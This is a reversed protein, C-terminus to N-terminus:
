APEICTEEKQILGNLIDELKMRRNDLIQFGHTQFQQQLGESSAVHMMIRYEGGGIEEIRSVGTMGALRQSGPSADGATDRVIMERWEDLLRDKECFALMRGRHMFMVYDALRYVEETTHTALILTRDENDMYHQLEDLWIKWALPDLGSTPEDLLLLEPHHATAIALEARRRMGKSLKGLRSKEDINFRKLLERYRNNDWNPYWLAAFAAKEAVTMADEHAHGNEAVFGVKAKYREDGGPRVPVGLVELEGQKLPELGLMLRFLTSKGSGNAGVIATVCGRPFEVHLPGLTFGRNGAVAGDLRVAPSERYTM